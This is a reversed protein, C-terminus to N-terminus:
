IYDDADGSLNGSNSVFTYKLGKEVIPPLPNAYSDQYQTIKHESGKNQYYGYQQNTQLAQDKLSQGSQKNEDAKRSTTLREPGKYRLIEGKELISSYQNIERNKKRIQEVYDDVENQLNKVRRQIRSVEEQLESIETECREKIDSMQEIETKMNSISNNLDRIEKSYAQELNRVQEFESGLEKESDYLVRAAEYFSEQTAKQELGYIANKLRKFLIMESIYAKYKEVSRPPLSILHNYFTQNQQYWEDYDCGRHALTYNKFSAMDTYINMYNLYVADNRKTDSKRLSEMLERLFLEWEESLGCSQAREFTSINLEDNIPKGQNILKWLLYSQRNFDARENKIITNEICKSDQLSIKELKDSLLSYSEIRCPQEEDWITYEDAGFAISCVIKKSFDNECSEWLTNMYEVHMESDYRNIEKNRRVFKNFTAYDVLMDTKLRSFVENCWMMVFDIQDCEAYLNFSSFPYEALEYISAQIFAEQLDYRKWARDMENFDNILDKRICRNKYQEIFKHGVDQIRGRYEQHVEKCKNVFVEFYNTVFGDEIRGLESEFFSIGKDTGLMFFGNIKEIIRAWFSLGKESAGEVDGYLARVAARNKADMQFYIDKEFLINEMLCKFSDDALLARYMETKELFAKADTIEKIDNAILSDLGNKNWIDTVVRDRFDPIEQIKELGDRRIGIFGERYSKELVEEYANLFILDPKDANYNQRNKDLEKYAPVIEQIGLDNPLSLVRFLIERYCEYKAASEVLNSYRIPLEDKKIKSIEGNKLEKLYYLSSLKECSLMIRGDEEGLIDTIYEKYQRLSCLAKKALKDFVAPIEIGRSDSFPEDRNLMFYTENEPVEEVFPFAVLRANTKSFVSYTMNKMYTAKDNDAAPILSSILWMVERAMARKQNSDIGEPYVFYLKKREGGIVLVLKYLLEKLNDCTFHYHELISDYSSESLIPEFERSKYTDSSSYNRDFEYPLYCESPDWSKVGPVWIHVVCKTVDLFGSSNVGVGVLRGFERSYYLFEAIESSNDEKKFIAGISSCSNLFSIDAKSSAYVKYGEWNERTYFAQDCIM